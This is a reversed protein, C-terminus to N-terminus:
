KPTLDQPEATGAAIRDREIDDIMEDSIDGTPYEGTFCGTCFERDNGGAVRVGDVMQEVTQYLVTDAGLEAAIQEHTRERAVFERKTSMDIGYFCPFLLPPSYSAFHVKVAGMQKAIAVIQRSTNGRVISDDLIIVHKGEFEARIPNLKARISARRAEDNPMIFTRGVYRNKVFGERCPLDLEEAMTQAATKASEPVPIVVDARLGTERFAHALRRGLEMRAEYVSTTDLFADPRAFYIYEFICPRHPKDGVQVFHPVRDSGIWLMEGAALDRVVEYGAVDLVVSESAVAYFTGEPTEKKGFIIPKIGFPDRFAYMGEATIGVVSYAGKVRRFVEEVAVRVEEVGIGDGNRRMLADAFVYLVVELDCSSGLHIHRNNFYTRRLEHFNTVNGNHAMAVGVPYDLWFPQVDTDEGLGVTPYRVHGVGLHGRLRQLHKDQFVERVLGLGKKAQFKEGFTVVGAADQGRHQIALLGSLVDHITDTGPPGIISIFGCMNPPSSVM